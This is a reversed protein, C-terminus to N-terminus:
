FPENDDETLYSVRARVWFGTGLWAILLGSIQIETIDCRADHCHHPWTRTTFGVYPLWRGLIANPREVNDRM